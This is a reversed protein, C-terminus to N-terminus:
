DCDKYNNALCDQVMKQAAAIQQPTLQSALKDHMQALEDKSLMMTEKGSAAALESWMAARVIDQAVGLGNLYILGLYNQATADGQQAAMRFWKAAESYDQPVVKGNYYSSGLSLQASVNGQMAYPQFYKVLPSVEAAAGDKLEDAWAVSGAVAFWVMLVIVRM